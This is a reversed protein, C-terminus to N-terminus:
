KITVTFVRNYPLNVYGLTSKILSRVQSLMDEPYVNCGDGLTVILSSKHRAEWDFVKGSDKVVVHGKAVWDNEGYEMSMVQVEINKKVIAM